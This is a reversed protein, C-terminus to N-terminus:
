EGKLVRTRLGMPPRAEPDVRVDLLTPGKRNCIERADLAKLDDISHIVHGAVGMAEAM